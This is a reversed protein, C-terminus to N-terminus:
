KAKGIIVDIFALLKEKLDEETEWIIHNYQCTDFHIENKDFDKKNVCWIVPINLGLAYGAEFYVGNSNETFDAVVFRSNKIESMIKVDIRENHPEEGIRHPHYGAEVIAPSIANEWVRFMEDSFSMAVFAQTKKEINKSYSDLYDWGKATIQVVMRDSVNGYAILGRDKLAQRYFALENKTNAWCLVFDLFSEILVQDGPYKTKRELAQLLIIQKEGPTYKPFQKRITEINKSNIEPVKFGKEKHERVWASLQFYPDDGMSKSQERTITFTGCRACKCSYSDDNEPTIECKELKCIPCKDAM